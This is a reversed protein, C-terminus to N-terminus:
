QASGVLQLLPGEFRLLHGSRAAKTARDRPTRPNTALPHAVRGAPPALVM